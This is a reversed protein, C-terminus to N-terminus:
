GPNVTLLSSDQRKLKDFIALLRLARRPEAMQAAPRGPADHHVCAQILDFAEAPVPWPQGSAGGASARVAETLLALKRQGSVVARQDVSNFGQRAVERGIEGYILRAAHIAPRCDFPLSAVGDSARRSIAEAEGILRAVVAGLRPDYRPVALFADADVGAEALWSRPLYLRGMRADEGVDRAINVLQMAIGLDCARALTAAARGGMLASMMVGVTGAVRVAYATVDSFTDYRKDGADWAFGELLLDLPARPLDCGEAVRALARDIPDNAPHGAFVANIRRALEGIAAAPDASLDVADDAVRCFAYLATAPERVRRPLLLSAAHFSKSGHRLLAHCAALDARAADTDFLGSM